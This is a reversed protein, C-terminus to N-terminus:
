IFTINLQSEKIYRPINIWTILSSYIILYFKYEFGGFSPRFTKLISPVNNSFRKLRSILLNYGEFKSYIPSINARLATFVDIANRMRATNIVLILFLGM